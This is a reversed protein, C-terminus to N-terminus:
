NRAQRKLRCLGNIGAAFRQDDLMLEREERKADKDAKIRKAFRKYLDKMKDDRCYTFKNLWGGKVAM